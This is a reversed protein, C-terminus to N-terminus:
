KKQNLVFVCCGIFIIFIIEVLLWCGAVLLWCGAVLLWCGAVLLWYGAVLV